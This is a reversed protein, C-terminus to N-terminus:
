RHEKASRSSSGEQEMQRELKDIQQIYVERVRKLKKLYEDDSLQNFGLLTM